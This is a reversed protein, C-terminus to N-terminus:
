RLTAPVNVDVDVIDICAQTRRSLRRHQWEGDMTKRMCWMRSRCPLAVRRGAAADLQKRRRVPVGAGERDPEQLRPHRPAVERRKDEYRCVILKRELIARRFLAYTASPMRFSVGHHAKTQGALFCVAEINHGDPDLVFAAYYNPGYHPGCARRATTRAAPPSRRATSRM